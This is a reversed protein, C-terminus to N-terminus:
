KKKRNITKYMRARIDDKDEKFIDKIDETEVKRSVKSEEEVKNVKERKVVKQRKILDRNSSAEEEGIYELLGINWDVKYTLEKGVKGYRNKKIGIYFENTDRNESLSLVRTSNQAIADSDRISTLDLTKNGFTSDYRNAQVALLIPIKLEQSLNVLDLSIDLLRDTTPQNKNGRENTIYSIGDIGLIQLNHMRIIKRIKSVTLRNNFDKMTYLNFKNKTKDINEIYEKYEESFNGKMLEFNNFGELITDIRYSVIQKSMEPTIFGVNIGGKSLNALIYLMIWSKGINTRGFITILEENKRIGILYDDLGPIQTPYFNNVNINEKNIRIDKDTLLNNQPISNNFSKENLKNIIDNYLETYSVENEEYYKLTSTIITRLCQIRYRNVVETIYVDFDDDTNFDIIDEFKSAFYTLSPLKNNINYFDVLFRFHPQYEIFMDEIVEGNLVCSFDQEKLMKLILFLQPDSNLKSM